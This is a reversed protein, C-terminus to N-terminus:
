AIEGGLERVTVLLYSKGKTVKKKTEYKKFTEPKDKKFKAEDFVIKESDDTKVHTIKVKGTDLSKVGYKEFQKLMDEKAKKHKKEIEKFTVLENELRIVEKQQAVLEKGYFLENWEDLEMEPNEKLKVCANQFAVIRAEIRKWEETDREIVHLVLKEPDFTIDFFEDGDELDYDIGTYFNEPRPYGALCIAPQDFTETYFQCQPTYLEVDLEKKESFTKVELMPIVDTNRDIGDTNGRLHRKEDIITDEIYNTGNVANLYDRIIPEMLNGYKTYANGKFDNPIIKMKKKAFELISEGYRIENMGLINPLDSGGIYKIRDVTVNENAM